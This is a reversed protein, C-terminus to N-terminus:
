SDMGKMVRKVCEIRELLARRMESDGEGEEEMQLVRKKFVSKLYVLVWQGIEYDLSGNGKKTNANTVSACAKWIQVFGGKGEGKKEKKEGERGLNRTFLAMMFEQLFLEQHAHMGEGGGGGVGRWVFECVGRAMVVVGERSKERAQKLFDWLTYLLTIREGRDREDGCWMCILYVYYPNYTKEAAMCYLIVRIIDRSVPGRLNLKTLKTKAQLFDQSGMVITFIEKRTDTNMHHLQAMRTLEHRSNEPDTTNPHDHDKPTSSTTEQLEKNELLNGKYSGGVLWWVGVKDQDRLDKLSVNLSELRTSGCTAKIAKGIATVHMNQQEAASKAGSHKKKNNKLDLITEVMFRFRTSHSFLLPPPNFVFILLLHISMGLLKAM